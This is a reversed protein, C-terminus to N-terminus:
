KAPETPAAPAAPALVKGKFMLVVPKDDANTTVTITKSFGGVAAANFTASVITSKGPMVPETSYKLNTCGCSAKATGILLPEKGTNTLKYEAVKPIGQPIDGMDIVTTEYSAIAKDPNVAQATNQAPEAKVPQNQAKMTGSFIIASVMVVSLIIKKM